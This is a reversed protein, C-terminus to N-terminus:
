GERLIVVKVELDMSASSFKEEIPILVVTIQPM